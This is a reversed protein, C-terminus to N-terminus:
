VEPRRDFESGARKRLQPEGRKEGSTVGEITVTHVGAGTTGPTTQRTGTQLREGVRYTGPDLGTFEYRGEADTLTVKDGTDFLGDGNTDRPNLFITWGSLSPESQPKSVM